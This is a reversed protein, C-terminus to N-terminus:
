ELTGLLQAPQYYYHLTIKEKMYYVQPARLWESSLDQDLSLSPCSKSKYTCYFLLFLWFVVARNNPVPACNNPVSSYFRACCVQTLTILLLIVNTLLSESPWCIVWFKWYTYKQIIFLLTIGFNEISEYYPNVKTSLKAIYNSVLTWSKLFIIGFELNSKIIYNPRKQVPIKCNKAKRM